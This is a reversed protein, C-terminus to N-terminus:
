EARPLQSWDFKWTTDIMQPENCVLAFFVAGEALQMTVQRPIVTGPVAISIPENGPPLSPSAKFGSRHDEITM